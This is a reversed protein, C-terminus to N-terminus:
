PAATPAPPLDSIEPLPVSIEQYDTLPTYIWAKGGPGAPFVIQLWECHRYCGAPEFAISAEAQGIV